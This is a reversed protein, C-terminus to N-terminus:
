GASCSGLTTLSQRTLMLTSSELKIRAREPTVNVGTLEVGQPLFEAVCIALPKQGLILPLASTLDVSGAGTTLEADTPTFLLSDASTSPTATARYGLELGFIAFTGSYSVEGGGLALEADGTNGGSALLANLAEEGFDISGTVAGVPTSEYDVPVVEAVIHVAASVGDVAFRPADLVVRDFSGALYQAIVSAGGISVDIDGSAGEPLNAAIETSVREEAYARVRADVIVFAAVLGLLVVATIVLEGIGRRKGAM